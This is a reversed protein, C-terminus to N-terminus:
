YLGAIGQACALLYEDKGAGGIIQLGFLLNEPTYHTPITLAPLGAHTWPLDMIPNGTTTIGVPASGTTPPCIWLDIDHQEMLAQLERRLKARGELASALEGPAIRQGERIIDVTRPRYLQEYEAFWAAHEQAMEGAVIRTHRANIEAIDSLAEVRCIRYGNNALTSIQTEFATLAEPSAQQLYPGEPVGLVPLSTATLAPQWNKCLLAAALAMGEVDQTFLGITDLSPACFVLGQTSIRGFSPKFGVIGCYAAPRITSGITQTGLALPCYDAAVAAASGSSSGGPTHEVNRPNRTPGPEFFAFETSVTKGLILAGAARLLTVCEAEPGAFLSTPLRSGARTAFGDVRLVDKVGVPVGYLLPRKAPDPYRERMEIAEALLRSRREAEPLLAQIGPEAADIRDCLQNIFDTLEIEGNRLQTATAALPLSSAPM